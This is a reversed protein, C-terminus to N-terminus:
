GAKKILEELNQNINKIRVTLRVTPLLTLEKKSMTSLDKLYDIKNITLTLLDLYTTIKKTLKSKYIRPSTNVETMATTKILALTKVLAPDNVKLDILKGGDLLDSTISRNKDLEKRFQTLTKEVKRVTQERKATTEQLLRIATFTVKGIDAIFGM